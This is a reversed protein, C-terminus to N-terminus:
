ASTMTVRRDDGPYRPVPTAPDGSSRTALESLRDLGSPLKPVDCRDCNHVAIVPNAQLGGTVLGVTVVEGEMLSQGQRRSSATDEDLAGLALAAAMRAQHPLYGRPGCDQDRQYGADIAATIWPQQDHQAKRTAYCRFCPGTKPRVFPGIRIVPHEAIVPLWPVSNRFSLEDAIECLAPEPRWLALVVAGTGASFADSIGSGLDFEQVEPLWAAVFGAVRGGFKGLGGVMVRPSTAHTLRIPDAM